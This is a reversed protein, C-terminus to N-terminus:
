HFIVEFAWRFRLFETSSRSDDQRYQKAVVDCFCCFAMLLKLYTLKLCSFMKIVQSMEGLLLLKVNYQYLFIIHMNINRICTQELWAKM